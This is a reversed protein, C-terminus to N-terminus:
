ARCTAMAEIIRELIEQGAESVAPDANPPSNEACLRNGHRASLLQRDLTLGLFGRGEHSILFSVHSSYVASQQAASDNM